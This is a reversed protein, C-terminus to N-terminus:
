AHDDVLLLGLGLGEVAFRRDIRAEGGARALAEVRALVVLWGNPWEAAARDGDPLGRLSAPADRDLGGPAEPAHRCRGSRARLHVKALVEVVGVADRGVAPEGHEGPDRGVSRDADALQALRPRNRASRHAAYPPGPRDARRDGLDPATAPDRR